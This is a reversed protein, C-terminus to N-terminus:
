ALFNVPSMHMGAPRGPSVVLVVVRVAQSKLQRFANIMVSLEGQSRAEIALSLPTTRRALAPIIRQWAIPQSRQKGLRLKLAPLGELCAQALASCCSGFSVLEPGDLLLLISSLLETPLDLLHPATNRGAARQRRKSM